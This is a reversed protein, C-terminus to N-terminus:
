GVKRLLEDLKQQDVSGEDLFYRYFLSILTAKREPTLADRHRTAFREVGEIIAELLDADPMGNGSKQETRFADLRDELDKSRAEDGREPARLYQAPVEYVLRMGGLGTRKECYWGEKEARLRVNDRSTPLGPLHM